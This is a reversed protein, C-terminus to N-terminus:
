EFTLTKMPSQLFRKCAGNLADAPRIGRRQRCSDRDHRVGARARRAASVLLGIETCGFIIGEAGSSSSGASSKATARRALRRPDFGPLARRLHHPARARSGARGARHRRHRAADRLRGRYFDQEMTFRTALLGVRACDPAGSRSRRRTPSTCCRSADGGSRDGARGQADHEHLARPLRRRGGRAIAGCRGADRRSRGLQGRAATARHRPLRRQVSRHAGFATRRAAAQRTENILRYYPLTSEWSMGGILGITKMADTQWWRMKKPAVRKTRTPCSAFPLM